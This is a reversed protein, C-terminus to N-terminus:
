GRRDKQTPYAGPAHTRPPKAPSGLAWLVDACREPDWGGPTSGGVAARKAGWVRQQPGEAPDEGQRPAQLLLCQGASEVLGSYSLVGGPLGLEACRGGHVGRSLKRLGATPQLSRPGREVWTARSQHAGDVRSRQRAHGCGWSRNKLESHGLGQPGGAPQQPGGWAKETTWPVMGWM